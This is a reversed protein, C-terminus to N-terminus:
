EHYFAVLQCYNGDTDVFTAIAEGWYEKDVTRIL